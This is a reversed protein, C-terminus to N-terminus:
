RAELAFAFARICSAQDDSPDQRVLERYSSAIRTRLPTALDDRRVLVEGDLAYVVPYLGNTIESDGWPVRQWLIVEREGNGDVDAFWPMPAVMQAVPSLLRFGVTSAEVCASPHAPSDLAIGVSWYRGSGEPGFTQVAVHGGGRMTGITCDIEAESDPIRIGTTCGNPRFVEVPDFGPCRDSATAHPDVTQLAIRAPANVENWRFPLGRRGVTDQDAGRSPSNGAHSGREPDRNATRDLDVRL